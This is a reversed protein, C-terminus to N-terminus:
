RAYKKRNEENFIVPMNWSQGYYRGHTFYITWEPILSIVRQAEYDFQGGVGRVIRVDQIQGTKRIVFNVIVRITSDNLEPIVDWNINSYIFELLVEHDETYVSKKTKERNNYEQTATLIGNKFTLRIDKEYINGVGNHDYYIIEGKSLWFDGNVWDAKVFGKKFKGPFLRSLDAKLSGSNENTYFYRCSYIAILHLENEIIRWEAQYGRGCDTSYGEEEVGFLLESTLEFEKWLDLPFPILRYVSDNWHFIDGRQPTAFTILVNTLIISIFTIIKKM